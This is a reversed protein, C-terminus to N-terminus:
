QHKGLFISCVSDILPSHLAFSISLFYTELETAEEGSWYDIGGCMPPIPPAHDGRIQTLIIM